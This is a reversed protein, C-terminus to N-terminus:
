SFTYSMRPTQFKSMRREFNGARSMYNETHELYWAIFNYIVM